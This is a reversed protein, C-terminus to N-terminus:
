GYQAYVQEIQTTAQKAKEVYAPLVKKLHKKYQQRSAVLKDVKPQLIEASAEEIKVVWDDLGLDHMIGSTKHEYEIALAPVLSTLSFIVSHFRTGIIMDLANYLTKIAHHSYDDTLIHVQKTHRIHAYVHRATVRDDDGGLNSTVQPIIVVAAQHQEVLYDVTHAIAAEYHQQRKADLWRRVTIGVVLQGPTIHLKQRLDATKASHFLFGSDVAPTLQIKKSVAALLKDTKRERTLLLDIQELTHAVVLRQFRTAFPGMSQPACVACAGFRKALKLPALMFFVCVNAMMSRDGNLYGGGMAVVLDASLLAGFIRRLSRPLLPLMFNAAKRPLCACLIIAASSLLTRCLRHVKSKAPSFCYRNFSGINQWEEFYPLESPDEQSSIKISAATFTRQLEHCIVSMLAADGKNQRVYGNVVLINM